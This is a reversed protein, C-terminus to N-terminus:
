PVLVIKRHAGAAMHEWARAVDDLPITEVGIEIAGRAAAETLRRYAEHKVEPPALFYTHGRIELMKGRIAASSLTAENGAGAGLQVIRARFSAAALAAELPRGFLPDVVVDIRGQAADSLAAPLDGRGDLRM